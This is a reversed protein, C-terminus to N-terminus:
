IDEKEVGTLITGDRGTLLVKIIRGSTYATPVEARIREYQESFGEVTRGKVEEILVYVNKGILSDLLEEKQKKSLANVTEVRKKKVDSSVQNKM